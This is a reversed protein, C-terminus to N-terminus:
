WADKQKPTVTVAYEYNQVLRKAKKKCESCVNHLHHSLSTGYFAHIVSTDNALFKLVESTKKVFGQRTVSERMGIM